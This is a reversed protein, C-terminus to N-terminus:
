LNVFDPKEGRGLLWKYLIDLKNTIIDISFNKEVLNRGNKGMYELESPEKGGIDDLINIFEDVEPKTWWGAKQEPLTMWPSASTTLVPLGYALAELIVMPFGESLSPLVFLECIAFLERKEEGYKPSLITINEQLGSSAIQYILDNKLFDDQDNGVIIFHWDKMEKKALFAEFAKLFIHLGKQPAIRSLFLICRKNTLEPYKKYFNLKSKNNPVEFLKLNLGNPIHAIPQSFNLKRFHNIEFLSTAQLCDSLELRRKEYLNWAFFKKLQSKKLAWPDLAGHPSIILPADFKKKLKKASRGHRLWIMHQHIVDASKEKLDPNPKDLTSLNIKYGLKKQEPMINNLVAGVGYANKCIQPVVHVLSLKKKDKKKMM